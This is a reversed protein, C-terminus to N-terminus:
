SRCIKDRILADLEVDRWEEGPLEQAAAQSPSVLRFEYGSARKCKGWICQSIGGPNVQLQNAAALISTHLNWKGSSGFPRSEVMKKKSKRAGGDLNAFHHAMNAAPTVYELNEVSNNGKDGDKHNIQTHTESPPGPLFAAAVLRHVYQNTFILGNLKTRFYGEATQHGRSVRGDRLRLRGLSSVMRGPVELGTRPDKMPRWEEKTEEEGAQQAFRMEFGQAFSGSRCFRSVVRSDLGLQEAALKVSACTTWEKSGVARWMVPKSRKVGGCIRMPNRVSHQTNQKNTVYELNELRNNSPNADVHHVQWALKNAPPGHFCLKVMRHVLFNQGLIHVGRYGSPCLSGYSIIGRTDCCRGESSVQWCKGDLRLKQQPQTSLCRFVCQLELQCLGANQRWAALLVTAM